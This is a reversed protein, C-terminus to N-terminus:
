QCIDGYTYSYNHYLESYEIKVCGTIEKKTVPDIIKDQDVYGSNVLTNVSVYTPRDEQILNDNNTSWLKAQREIFEIQEKRVKENTDNITEMINPLAISAIVALLVIVALLEILTFGKKM